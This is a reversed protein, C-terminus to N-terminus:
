EATSGQRYGVVISENDVTYDAYALSCLVTVALVLTLTKM